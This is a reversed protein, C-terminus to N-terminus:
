DCLAYLDGRPNVLLVPLASKELIKREKSGFILDDLGYERSAAIITLDANQQAWAAAEREVGDSDKRARVEEYDISFSDFLTKMADINHAARTGYDKPRFIVLKSHFFRGFAAAFPGKEKEEPLFTVPLAVTGFRPENGSRVFLYPVRLDRCANLYPQIDRKQAIEAVLMSADIRELEDALDASRVSDGATEGGLHLHRVEHRLAAAVAEAFRMATDGAKGNMTLAVVVRSM